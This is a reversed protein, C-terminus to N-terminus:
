AGAQGGRSRAARKPRRAAASKRRSKSRPRAPSARPRVKAAPANLLAAAARRACRLLWDSLRRDGSARAMGIAGVCLVAAATASADLRRPRPRGRGLEAILGYVANAYALRAALPGRGVDGPLAALTCGVSVEGIHDKHLYDDLVRAAERGLTRPDDGTRSRLLRLLGHSTRLVEAFLDDKSEFHAYFAGRTLGAALMVDDITTAEYGRLRFLRAAHDLIEQRTRAKRHPNVPM